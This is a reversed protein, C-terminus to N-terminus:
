APIGVIHQNCYGLGVTKASDKLAPLNASVQKSVTAMMDQMCTCHRCLVSVFKSPAVDKLM